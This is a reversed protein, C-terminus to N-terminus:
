DPIYLRLNGKFEVGGNFMISAEAGYVGKATWCRGSFIPQPFNAKDWRLSANCGGGWYAGAKAVAEIEAFFEATLFDTQKCSCQTNGERGLSLRTPKLAERDGRRIREARKEVKEKSKKIMEKHKKSLKKTGKYPPKPPFPKLPKGLMKGWTIGVGAKLEFGYNLEICNTDLEDSFELSANFQWKGTIRGGALIPFPTTSIGGEKHYLIEGSINPLFYRVIPEFPTLKKLTEETFFLGYEDRYNIM